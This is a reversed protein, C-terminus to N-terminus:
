VLGLIDALHECLVEYLEDESRGDYTVERFSGSGSLRTSIRAKWGHEWVYTLTFTANEVGVCGLEPQEM